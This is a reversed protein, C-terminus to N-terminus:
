LVRSSNPASTAPSWSTRSIKRQHGLQALEVLLDDEVMVPLGAIELLELPGVPRGRAVVREAAILDSDVQVNLVAHDTIDAELTRAAGDGPGRSRHHGRAKLPLGEVLGLLEELAEMVHQRGASGARVGRLEALERDEGAHTFERAPDFARAQRPVGHVGRKGARVLRDRCLLLAFVM